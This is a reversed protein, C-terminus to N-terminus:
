VPRPHPEQRHVEALRPDADRHRVLAPRERGAEGRQAAHARALVRLRDGREDALVAHPLDHDPHGVAEVAADTGLALLDPREGFPQASREAHRHHEAVLPEGGHGGVLAEGRRAHPPAVAALPDVAHRGLDQELLVEVLAGSAPCRAVSVADQGGARRAAGAAPRAAEPAHDTPDGERERGRTEGGDGRARRPPVLDRRHLHRRPRRRHPEDDRRARGGFRDAVLQLGHTQRPVRRDEAGEDARAPHAALELGAVVHELARERELLDEVLQHPALDLPAPDGHRFAAGDRLDRRDHRLVSEGAGREEGGRVVRRRHAVEIGRCLVELAVEEGVRVLDRLGARGLRLLREHPPHGLTEALDHARGEGACGRVSETRSITVSAEITSISVPRGSSRGCIAATNRFRRRRPM